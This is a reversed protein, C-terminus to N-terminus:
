MDASQRDHDKETNLMDLLSVFREELRRHSFGAIKDDNINKCHCTASGFKIKIKDKDDVQLDRWVFLKDKGCGPCTGYLLFPHMNLAKISGNDQREILYVKGTELLRGGLRELKFTENKQIPVNYKGCLDRYTLTCRDEDENISFDELMVMQCQTQELFPMNEIVQEIGQVANDAWQSIDTKCINHWESHAGMNRLKPFDIGEGGLFAKFARVNQRTSNSFWRDFNWPNNKIANYGLAALTRWDGLNMSKMWKVGNKRGRYIGVRKQFEILFKQAEDNLSFTEGAKEKHVRDWMIARLSLAVIFGYLYDSLNFAFDLRDKNSGSTILYNHLRSVPLHCGAFHEGNIQNIQKRYEECTEENIFSFIIRKLPSKKIASASQIERCWASAVRQRIQGAYFSGM